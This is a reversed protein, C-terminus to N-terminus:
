EARATERELVAGAFKVIANAACVKGCVPVDTMEHSLRLSDLPGACATIHLVATSGCIACYSAATM